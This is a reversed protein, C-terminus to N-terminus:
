SGSKIPIVKVRAGETKPLTLTLMGEAYDAEVKDADVSHPLRVSRSFRGYRRERILTKAEKHESTQEPIEAIITLEDDHVTININEPNVGPLDTKVIYHDDTEDVDLALYNEGFPAQPWESRWEDFLKDLSSQMQVMERFPNWRTLNAM